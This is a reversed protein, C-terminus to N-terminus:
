GLKRIPDLFKEKDEYFDRNTNNVNLHCKSLYVAGRCDILRDDTNILKALDPYYNNKKVFEKYKDPVLDVLIIKPTVYMLQELPTFYQKMPVKYSMVKKSINSLYTKDNAKAKLYNSVQTLLPAHTYPYFWTYANAQNKKIDFHNFYYEFVWVLGDIYHQLMNTLKKNGNDLEGSIDFFESYYRRIGKEVNESKWVYSHPDIKIYGLNLTHANLKKQYEDLMNEFKYVEEDYKTIRLNPDIHNLKKELNQRHYNDNLSKRYRRFAIRVIPFKKNDKYYNQYSRLFSDNNDSRMNPVLKVLKSVFETEKYWKSIDSNKRIDSNLSRLNSLFNNLIQTFNSQDAGMVRKLKNYNQYNNAMYTKQLSDGENQALNNILKVLFPQNITKTTAQNILYEGDKLIDIYIDIIRDFDQSVSFSEIKPLFDNGFITLVYVIDDIVSNQILKKSVKKESKDTVNKLVYSFLNGALKQIDIINYVNRQQNFRIINLNSITSSLILGLLTVDSDPSYIAINMNQQKKPLALIRDVIKKEGEGPEYVTSVSYEKLNKCTEKITSSFDESKLLESLRDMFITGPTIKVRNWEIQNKTFLYRNKDQKLKDTHKQFIKKKMEMVVAGMYRRKKQEMLKGKSPVGDIGLYLLELKNPNVFNTVMNIVYDLTKELIYSDLRDDVLYEKFTEISEIKTPNIKYNTLIKDIKGSKKGTIIKYLLYNMDAIVLYSTTYIISNFDVYLQGIQLRDSLTYTFSDKINTIKNEVISSFFREIGM